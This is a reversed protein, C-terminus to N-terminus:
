DFRLAAGFVRALAKRDGWCSFVLRQESGKYDWVACHAGDVTFSWSHRVKNPDDRVNPPFGIKTEFLEATLGAITGM